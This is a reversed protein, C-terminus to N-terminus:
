LGVPRIIEFFDKRHRGGGHSGKQTHRRNEVNDVRIVRAWGTVQHMINLEITLGDGRHYHKTFTEQPLTQGLISVHYPITFGGGVLGFGGIAYALGAFSGTLFPLGLNPLLDGAM